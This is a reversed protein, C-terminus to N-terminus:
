IKEFLYVNEPLKLKEFVRQKILKGGMHKYFENTPNAALCGVIMKTFGMNKLEKIAMAFLKRGYGHGKYDNILYLAYLEGCDNYQADDSVDVNIFGVIENNIELVYQHNINEDFEKYFNNAREQENLYINDLFEDNVIGRYTENQATTVIRAVSFCDNKNMKRIIYDMNIEEYLTTLINKLQKKINLNKNLSIQLSM